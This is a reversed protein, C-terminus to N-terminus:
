FNTARSPRNFDYLYQTDIFGGFSVKLKDIAAEGEGARANPTMLFAAGTVAIFFCTLLSMTRM